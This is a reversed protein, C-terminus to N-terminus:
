LLGRARMLQGYRDGQQRMTEPRARQLHVHTHTYKRECGAICGDLVAEGQTTVEVDLVEWPQFTPDQWGFLTGPAIIASESVDGRYTLVSDM